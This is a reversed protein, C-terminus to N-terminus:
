QTVKLLRAVLEADRYIVERTGILISLEGTAVDRVHALMPEILAVPAQEATTAEPETSIDALHPAAALMGTATVGISTRHLFGRRTLKEM